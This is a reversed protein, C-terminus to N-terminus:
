SILFTYKLRQCCFGVFSIFIFYHVRITHQVTSICCTICTATTHRGFSRQEESHPSQQGFTESHSCHKLSASIHSQWIGFMLLEHGDGETLLRKVSCLLVDSQTNRNKNKKESSQRSQKGATHWIPSHRCRDAEQTRSRYSDRSQFWSWTPPSMFAVTQWRDVM